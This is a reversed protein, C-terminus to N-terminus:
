HLSLDSSSCIPTDKNINVSIITEVRKFQATFGYIGLAFYFQPSVIKGSNAPKFM